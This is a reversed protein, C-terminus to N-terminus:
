AWADWIKLVRFAFALKFFADVVRRNVNEANRFTSAPHLHVIIVQFNGTANNRLAPTTDFDNSAINRLNLGNDFNNDTTDCATIVRDFDGYAANFVGIVMDFDTYASM